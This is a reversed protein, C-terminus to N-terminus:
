GFAVVTGVTGALGLPPCHNLKLYGYWSMEIQSSTQTSREQRPLPIVNSLGNAYGPTDPFPLGYM